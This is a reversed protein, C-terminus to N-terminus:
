KMENFNLFLQDIFFSFFFGGRLTDEDTDYSLGGVFLSLTANEDNSASYSSTTTSDAGSTWPDVETTGNVATETTTTAGSKNM